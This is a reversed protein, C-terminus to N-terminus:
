GDECHWTTQESDPDPGLWGVVQSHERLLTASQWGLRHLEAAVEAPAKNAVGGRHLGDADLGFFQISTM